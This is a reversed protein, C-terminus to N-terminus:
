VPQGAPPVAQSEGEGDLAAAAAERTDFAEAGGARDPIHCAAACTACANVPHRDKRAAELAPACDEFVGIESLEAKAPLVPCFESHIFHQGEAQPARTVFFTMETALAEM